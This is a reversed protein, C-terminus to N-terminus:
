DIHALIVQLLVVSKLIPLFNGILIQFINSSTILRCQDQFSFMVPITNNDLDEYGLEIFYIIILTFLSHM